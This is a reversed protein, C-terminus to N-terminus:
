AAFALHKWSRGLIVFNIAPRSVGYEEALERQLIGGRKWRERIELVDTKHLKSNHHREGSVPKRLGTRYAHLNNGGYTVLELNEPRNDDKIGNKHNVCLNDPIDGHFSQWVIRGAPITYRRKNELRGVILYGEPNPYEARRKGVDVLCVGTTGTGRRVKHRWIHGAEDISFEGTACAEVVFRESCLHERM